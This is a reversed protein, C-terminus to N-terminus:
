LRSLPGSVDLFRGHCSRCTADISHLVARMERADRKRAAASLQRAQDRLTESQARFARRDAEVMVLHAVTDPIREASRALAEALPFAKEFMLTPSGGGPPTHEDNLDEPWNENTAQQMGAMLDRLREDYVAHSEEVADDSERPANTVRPVSRDNTCGLAILGIVGVATTFRKAGM